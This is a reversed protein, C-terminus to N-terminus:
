IRASTRAQTEWVL